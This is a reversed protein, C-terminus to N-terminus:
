FRGLPGLRGKTEGFNPDRRARTDGNFPLFSRASATNQGVRGWTVVAASVPQGRVQVLLRLSVGAGVLGRGADEHGQEVIVREAHGGVGVSRLLQRKLLPLDDLHPHLPPAPRVAPGPSLPREAPPSSWSPSLCAPFRDDRQRGGASSAPPWGAPWSAPAGDTCLGSEQLVRGPAGDERPRLRTRRGWADGRCKWTPPRPQPGGM